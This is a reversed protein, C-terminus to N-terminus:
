IEFADPCLGCSIFDDNRVTDGGFGASRMYKYIPDIEVSVSGVDKGMNKLIHGDPGVIMSCGGHEDDNMSFSSRAVYANCRFATLKAQAKIIDTREGRQYGPIIIIDPKFRAIFEIQENFYVDYCTMFAFRIGDLICTCQAKGNDNGAVVGLKIESPPLHQKNYVFAVEGNKDFLYTSNKIEGNLKHLVNIAVYCGKNKAVKSSEKLMMEARPLANLESEIDSIGGANSYEPLVILGGHPADNLEKLLFEAIKEDPNEGAYYSPQVVKINLM